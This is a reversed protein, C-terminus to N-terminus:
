WSVPGHVDAKWREDAKRGREWDRRAKRAALQRDLRPQMAKLQERAAEAALHQLETDLTTSRAIRGQAPGM